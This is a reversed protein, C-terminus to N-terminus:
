SSRRCAPEQDNRDNARIRARAPAPHPRGTGRPRTGSGRARPERSRSPAPHRRRVLTAPPAGAREPSSCARRSAPRGHGGPDALGLRHLLSRRSTSSRCSTSSRAAGSRRRRERHLDGGLPPARAARAAPSWRRRRFSRCRRRRRGARAVPRPRDREYPGAFAEERTWVEAVLPRGDHRAASGACGKPWSPPSAEDCTRPCRRTAARCAASSTSARAARRRRMPSRRSGTSRAVHRTIERSASTRTGTPRRARRTRGPWTARGSSGPTSTSCRARRASATTPHWCSPRRRGPSRWSSARDDRRAHPLVARLARDDRAGLAVAREPPLSPRHLALLPAPAQGGRRVHRRGPRRAGGADALPRDRVLAARAPHSARGLRRVGRRPLGRDGQGRAGHRAARQPNFGPLAKLRDFLGPPHCGLRLQRWPM